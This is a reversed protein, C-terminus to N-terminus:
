PSTNNAVRGNGLQLVAGQRGDVVTNKKKEIYECSGQIDTVRPLTMGHQAFNKM